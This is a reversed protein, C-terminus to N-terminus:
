STVESDASEDDQGDADGTDTADDGSGDEGDADTDTDADADADATDEDVLAGPHDAVWVDYASGDPFEELDIPTGTSRRTLVVAGVVAVTLLLATIEFAFVYDTFIARGLREVDPVAPDLPATAAERGTTRQGAALLIAVSGALLVAGGLVTITRRLRFPDREIAEAQDVGLLMIVFLFLIVIAGAYVIVQIAALFYAEQAIFLVAVGFLTAVLSLANHVPNRFLVVGLAGGVCIAGAVLFTFVEVRM